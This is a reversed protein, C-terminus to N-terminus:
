TIKNPCETYNSIIMGRFGNEGQCKLSDYQNDKDYDCNDIQVPLSCPGTSNTSNYQVSQVASYLPSRYKMRGGSYGYNHRFMVAPQSQTKTSM